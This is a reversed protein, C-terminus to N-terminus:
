MIDVEGLIDVGMREWNEGVLFTAGGRQGKRNEINVSSIGSGRKGRREGWVTFVWCGGRIGGGAGGKGRNRGRNGKRM